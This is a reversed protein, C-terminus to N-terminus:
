IVILNWRVCMETLSISDGFRINTTMLLSQLLYQGDDSFFREDSKLVDLVENYFNM